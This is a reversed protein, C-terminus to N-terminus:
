ILNENAIDKLYIESPIMFKIIKNQYHFIHRSINLDRFTM